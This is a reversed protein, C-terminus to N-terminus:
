AVNDRSGSAHARALFRAIIYAIVAYNAANLLAVVLWSLLSGVSHGPEHIVFPPVLTISAPCLLISVFGLPLQVIAGGPLFQVLVFTLYLVGTVGVGIGAFQLAVQWHRSMM